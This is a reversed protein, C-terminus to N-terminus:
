KDAAMLTTDLFIM